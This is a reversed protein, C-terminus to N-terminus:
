GTANVFRSSSAPSTSSRRDHRRQTGSTKRSSASAQAAVATARGFARRLTGSSLPVTTSTTSTDPEIRALSTSGVRRSAATLAIRVNRSL